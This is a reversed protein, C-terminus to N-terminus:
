NLQTDKFIIRNMEQKRPDKSFLGLLRSKFRPDEYEEGIMAAALKSYEVTSETLSHLTSPTNMSLSELFHLEHPIVALVKCGAADEIEELTLEFSKKHVKNIIIGDIETKKQKALVVARLTTSLTVHDPTTVVFLKDSAIMTTLIEENLTPSSDLIIIDYLKKLSEIRNKLKYPNIKKYILAGPMIHFGFETEYIAQQPKAKNHMVHHVTYEPNVCGLHLGLNPASFNADILLVKKNFEQALVAGLAVVTTTKGVGGKISIIGFVQNATQSM